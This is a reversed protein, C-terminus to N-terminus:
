KEKTMINVGGGGRVNRIVRLYKKFPKLTLSLFQGDIGIVRAYLAIDKRREIYVLIRKIVLLM